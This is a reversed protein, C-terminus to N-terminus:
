VTILVKAETMGAGREKEYEPRGNAFLGEGFMM